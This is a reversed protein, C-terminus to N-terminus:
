LENYKWSHLYGEPIFMKTTGENKVANIYSHISEMTVRITLEINFETGHLTGTVQRKVYFYGRAKSRKLDFMRVVIAFNGDRKIEEDDIKLIFETQNELAIPIKEYRKPYFVSDAYDPYQRKEKEDDDITVSM